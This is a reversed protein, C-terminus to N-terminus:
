RQWRRVATCNKCKQRYPIGIEFKHDGHMDTPIEGYDFRRNTQFNFDTADKYAWCKADPDLDFIHGLFIGWEDWTAAYDNGQNQRRRSSGTLIVEFAREHSRSGHQSISTFGVRAKSAARQIEAMELSTHIRM